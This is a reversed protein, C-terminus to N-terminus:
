IHKKLSEIRANFAQCIREIRKDDTFPSKSLSNAIETEIEIDALSALDLWSFDTILRIQEEHTSRFPKSCPANEARIDIQNHWLSTGSDYIPALGIWELTEANRIAGFNSMHRDKNAILYDLTLMKDFNQQANPISLEACCDLFHKYFNDANETEIRKINHIYFGSVLETNSTVFNECISYPLGDNFIVSYPVHEIRLRSMISTAIEENCPEQQFPDSGAKILFRKGNIIKWRKKLVGDSTNDPSLLNLSYKRDAIDAKQFFANGVDESFPNDFFNIKEWELHNQAPSVWYQDSLSLGFCKTLLQASSSVGMNEMAERFNQRSAPISRGQWWDDLDDIDPIGNHVTIGIPLHEYNFVKGISSIRARKESIDIEAVAIKRHMLTFNM